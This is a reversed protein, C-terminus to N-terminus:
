EELSAESGVPHDDSNSIIVINHGGYAFSGLEYPQTIIVAGYDTLYYRSSDKVIDSITSNLESSSLIDSPNASLFSRIASSAQSRLDDSSMNLAQEPTISAGTDLNYIVGSTSNWGHVGWGTEYKDTRISAISGNLRTVTQTYNTCQSYTSDNTWAKTDSLTNDFDAKLIGNIRTMGESDVASSFQPYRWMENLRTTGFSDNHVIQVDTTVYNFGYQIPGKADDPNSPDPRLIVDTSEEDSTTVQVDPCYYVENSDNSDSSDTIAMSYTGDTLDGVDSLNFGDTGDVQITARAWASQASSDKPTITVVYHELPKNDESYAIVTTDRTLTVPQDSGYYVENAGSGRTLLIIAVVIAAVVVVAGAIIGILLPKNDTLKRHSKTKPDAHPTPSGASSSAPQGMIVPNGSPAPPAVPAQYPPQTQPEFASEPMPEDAIDDFNDNAVDSVLSDRAPASPEVDAVLSDKAPAAPDIDSVSSDAVPADPESPQEIRAGCETCFKQGEEIPAHCKKCFM